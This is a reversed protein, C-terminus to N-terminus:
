SKLQNTKVISQDEIVFEVYPEAVNLSAYIGIAMIILCAMTGFIGVFLYYATLNIQNSIIFYVNALIVLSYLIFGIGIMFSVKTLAILQRQQKEIRRNNYRYEELMILTSGKMIAKKEKLFINLSSVIRSFDNFKAYMHLNEILKNDLQIKDVVEIIFAEFLSSQMNTFRQIQYIVFVGSLALFAALVQAITSFTYYFSNEM